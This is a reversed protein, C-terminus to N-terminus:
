QSVPSDVSGREWHKDLQNPEEVTKSAFVISVNVLSSERKVDMGEGM